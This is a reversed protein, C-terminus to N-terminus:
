GRPHRWQAEHSPSICATSNVGHIGSPEESPSMQHGEAVSESSGHTGSTARMITASLSEGQGRFKLDKPLKDPPRRKLRDLNAEWATQQQQQVTRNAFAEPRQKTLESFKVGWGRDLM